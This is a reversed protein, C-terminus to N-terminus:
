VTLPLENADDNFLRSKIKEDIDVNWINNPAMYFDCDDIPELKGRTFDEVWTTKRLRQSLYYNLAEPVQNILKYLEGIIFRIHHDFDTDALAIVLKDTFRTNNKAISIHLPTICQLNPLFPIDTM